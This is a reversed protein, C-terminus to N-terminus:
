LLEIQLDLAMDLEVIACPMRLAEWFAAGFAFATGFTGTRSFGAFNLGGDWPAFSRFSGGRYGPGRRESSCTFAWCVFFYGLMIGAGPVKMYQNRLSREM